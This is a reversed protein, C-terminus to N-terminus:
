KESEFMRGNHPVVLVSVVDESDMKWGEFLYGWRSAFPNWTGSPDFPVLEMNVEMLGYDNEVKAKAQNYTYEPLSFYVGIIFIPVFFIYPYRKKETIWYKSLVVHMVLLTVIVNLSMVNNYIQADVIFLITLLVLSIIIGPLYNKM